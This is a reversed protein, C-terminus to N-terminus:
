SEEDTPRFALYSFVAFGAVAISLSIFGADESATILVLAVAYLALFFYKVLM